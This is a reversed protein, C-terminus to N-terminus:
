KRVKAGGREGPLSSIRLRLLMEPEFAEPERMDIALGKEIYCELEKKLVSKAELCFLFHPDFVLFRYSRYPIWIGLVIATEKGLERLKLLNAFQHEEIRSLPFASIKNKIFKSEYFFDFGRFAAFGDFPRPSSNHAVAAPPDPIKYAWGHGAFLATLDHNLDKELM